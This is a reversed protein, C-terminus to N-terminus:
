RKYWASNPMCLFPKVAFDGCDSGTKMDFYRNIFLRNFYILIHLLM